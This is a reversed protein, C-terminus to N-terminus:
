TAVKGLVLWGIQSTAIIVQDGTAPTYSALRPLTMSGGSVEVVVKVGNTGTVEGAVLETTEADQAARTIVDALSLAM